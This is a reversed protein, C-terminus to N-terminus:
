NSQTYFSDSNLSSIDNLEQISFWNLLCKGDLNGTTLLQNKEKQDQLKSINCYTISFLGSQNQSLYYLLNILDGEHLLTLEVPMSSKYVQLGDLPETLRNDFVPEKKLIRYKVRPIQFHETVKNIQEIWALRNEDGEIGSKKLKLFKKRYLKLLKLRDEAIAIKNEQKQLTILHEQNKKNLYFKFLFSGTALLSSILMIIALLSIESKLDNWNIVDFISKVPCLCELNM